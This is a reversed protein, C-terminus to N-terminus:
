EPLRTLLTKDYGFRLENSNIYGETETDLPVYGQAVTAWQRVGEFSAAVMHENEGEMDYESVRANVMISMFNKPNTTGTKFKNVTDTGDDLLYDTGSFEAGSQGWYFVIKRPEGELFRNIFYNKGAGGGQSWPITVSGSVLIRSLIASVATPDNFYSFEVNNELNIEFSPIFMEVWEGGVPDWMAASMDQYKFPLVGRVFNVSNALASKDAQNWSAARLTAEMSFISGVEGSFTLGGCVAGKMIQDVEDEGGTRQLLRVLQMFTIPDATDYPRCTLINLETDTSEAEEAGAQYFSLGFMSAHYADALMPLTVEPPDATQATNREPLDVQAIGRAQDDEITSAPAPLNPHDTLPLGFLGNASGTGQVGIATDPDFTPELAVHDRLGESAGLNMQQVGYLDQWRTRTTTPM